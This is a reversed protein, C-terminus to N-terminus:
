RIEHKGDCIVLLCVCGDFQIIGNTSWEESLYCDFVTPSDLSQLETKLGKIENKLLSIESDKDIGLQEIRAEMAEFREELTSINGEAGIALARLCALAIIIQTSAM